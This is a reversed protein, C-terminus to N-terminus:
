LRFQFAPTDFARRLHIKKVTNTVTTWLYNISDHVFNFHLLPSLGGCAFNKVANTVPTYLHDTFDQLFNFYLLPSLGVCAFKKSLACAFNKVVKIVTFGDILPLFYM